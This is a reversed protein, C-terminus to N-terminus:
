RNIADLPVLRLQGGAGALVAASGDPLVAVAYAIGDLRQELETVAITAPDIARLRGDDCAALIHSGSSLWCIANPASPLRVFRVLRGIEPQWFRVTRDAGCSAVLAPGDHKGPRLALDRVAATHNDLSRRVDGTAPDLVRIAQDSGASLLLDDGLWATALVSASHCQFQKVEDSAVDIVRVKKDGCAVALQSGDANWAARYAVDGGATLAKSLEGAPWSRLEVRGQEAPSGGVLAITKGDPSLALDHIHELDCKPKSQLVLGPLSLVQVGAQSGALVSSGEPAIALAVVPPPQTLLLSLPLIVASNMM